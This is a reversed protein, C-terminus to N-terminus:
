VREFVWRCSLMYFARRNGQRSWPEFGQLEVLMIIVADFVGALRHNAPTKKSEPAEMKNM